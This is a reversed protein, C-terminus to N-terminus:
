VAGIVDVSLESRQGNGTVEIKFSFGVLAPENVCKIICKNGTQTMTLKDNLSAPNIISFVVESETEATFTKRGGIRISPSGSFTINIPNPHPISDPDIYDCLMLDIRDTKQNFECETFTIRMIRMENYSYPVKSM